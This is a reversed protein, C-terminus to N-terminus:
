KRTQSVIDDFKKKYDIIYPMESFALKDEKQPRPKAENRVKWEWM